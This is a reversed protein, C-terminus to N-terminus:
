PQIESLVNTLLIMQTYTMEGNGIAEYLYKDYDMGSMSFIPEDDVDLWINVVKQSILRNNYFGSGFEHFPVPRGIRQLQRKTETIVDAELKSLVDLQKNTFDNNNETIITTTEM